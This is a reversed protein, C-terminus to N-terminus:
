LRSIEWRRQCAALFNNGANSGCPRDSSAAAEPVPDGGVRVFGGRNAAANANGDAARDVRQVAPVLVPLFRRDGVRRAKVDCAKFL